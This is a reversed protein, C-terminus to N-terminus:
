LYNRPDQAKGNIYVGFHLHPGTSNGESGVYAIVQGKTVQAGETIGSARASCHGYFTVMGNHHDIFVYNSGYVATMNAAALHLSLLVTGADAAKIPTGYSAGIDIGDHFDNAAHTAPNTRMGFPSTIPGSVPWMLQGTGTPGGTNKESALQEQIAKQIADNLQQEQKDLDAQQQTLNNVAAGYQSALQVQQTKQEKLNGQKVALNTEATQLGAKNAELTKKDSEISTKQSQLSAILDRDHGTVVKLTEVRDLFNTVSSSSLLVEIYSVNGAEYKARLRQKLLAYNTDISKQKADIEQQKSTIQSDLGSIQSTLLNIQQTVLSMNQEVAKEQAQADQKKKTNAKIADNNQKIKQEIANYQNQLGSVSDAKSLLPELIMGVLFVLVVILAVVAAIRRKRGYM